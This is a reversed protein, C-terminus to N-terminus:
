PACLSVSSKLVLVLRCFCLAPRPLFFIFPLQSSLSTVQSVRLVFSDHTEFALSARHRPRLRAPPHRPPALPPPPAPRGCTGHPLSRDKRHTHCRLASAVHCPARPVRDAPLPMANPTTDRPAPSPVRQGGCSSRPQTGAAPPGSLMLSSEVTGRGSNQSGNSSSRLQCRGGRPFTHGSRCLGAGTGPESGTVEDWWSARAQSLPGQAPGAAAPGPPRAQAASQDGWDM